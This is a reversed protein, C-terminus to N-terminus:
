GQCGLINAKGASTSDITATATAGVSCELPPDFIETHKGAGVQVQWITTSGDKILMISGAKDSSCTATTIYVKQGAVAAITATPATGDTHTAKVQAMHMIKPVSM